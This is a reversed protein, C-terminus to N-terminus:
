ALLEQCGRQTNSPNDHPLWHWQFLSFKHGEPAPGEGPPEGPSMPLLLFDGFLVIGRPSM